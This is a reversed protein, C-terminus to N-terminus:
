YKYKEERPQNVKVEVKPILKETEHQKQKERNVYSRIFGLFIFIILLGSISAILGVFEDSFGSLYFAITALMIMITVETALVMKWSYGIDLLRHQLHNRDATTVIRLVNKINPNTRVRLAMVWLADLIPLGLIIISTALKAGGLISFVALLYGNIYEGFGYFIKSPPYNYPLVGLVAGLHISILIALPLNGTRMAVLLMAIDAIATLSGNLADIGSAWNVFNIIALIWFLAILDGPLIMHYIFNGIEINTSFLNLDIFVGAVQIYTITIGSIVVAIAALCYALFQWKASLDYIDDLIGVVSIIGLGLLIGWRVQPQPDSFLFAAVLGLVMALGGLRPTIKENIRHQNSGLSGRGRLYAPLDLAGLREAVRAVIPTSLLTIVLAITFYQVLQSYEIILPPLNLM